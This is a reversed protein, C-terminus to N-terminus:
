FGWFLRGLYSKPQLAVSLFFFNEAVHL